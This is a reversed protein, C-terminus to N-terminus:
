HLSQQPISHVYEPSRYIAVLAQTAYDKVILGNLNAPNQAYASRGFGSELAGMAYIMLANMGYLNQASVFNAGAGVMTSLSPDYKNAAMYYDTYLDLEEATYSTKSRLNTYAYYNYHRMVQGNVTVPNTLDVDTYFVIGDPSYYKGDALWEPALGV